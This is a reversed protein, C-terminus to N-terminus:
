LLRRETEQAGIKIYSKVTKKKKIEDNTQQLIIPKPPVVKSNISSQIKENNKSLNEHVRQIAEQLIECKKEQIKLERDKM